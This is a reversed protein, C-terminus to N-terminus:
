KAAKLEDIRYLVQKMESSTGGHRILAFLREELAKILSHLEEASLDVTYTMTREGETSDRSSRHEVRGDILGYESIYGGDRWASVGYFDRFWVNGKDYIRVDCGLDNYYKRVEEATAHDTTM